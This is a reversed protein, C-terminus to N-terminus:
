PIDEQLVGGHAQPELVKREPIYGCPHGACDELDGCSLVSGEVIRVEDIGEDLGGQGLVLLNIDEEVMRRLCYSEIAYEGESAPLDVVELFVEKYGLPRQVQM